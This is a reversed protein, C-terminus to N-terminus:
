LVNDAIMNCKEKGPMKLSMGGRKGTCLRRMRAEQPRLPRLHADCNSVSHQSLDLGM